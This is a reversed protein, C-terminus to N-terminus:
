ELYLGFFQKKFVQFFNMLFILGTFLHFNCKLVLYSYFNIYWSLETLMKLKHQIFVIDNWSKVNVSTDNWNKIRGGISKIGDSSSSFTSKCFLMYINTDNWSNVYSSTSKSYLM